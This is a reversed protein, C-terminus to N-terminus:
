PISLQFLFKGIKELIFQDLRAAQETKLIKGNNLFRGAYYLQFTQKECGGNNSFRLPWWENDRSERQFLRDMIKLQKTTRTLRQHPNTNVEKQRQFNRIYIISSGQSKRKMEKIRKTGSTPVNTIDSFILNTDKPDKCTEYKEVLLTPKDPDKQRYGSARLEVIAKTKVPKLPPPPVMASHSLRCLTLIICLCTTM